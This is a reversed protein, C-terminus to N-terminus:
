LSTFAWNNRENSEKIARTSDAFVGLSYFDQQVEVTITVIATEGAGLSSLGVTGLEVINIHIEGLPDEFPEVSINKDFSLNRHSLNNLPIGDPPM